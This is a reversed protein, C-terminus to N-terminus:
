LFYFKIFQTHKQGKKQEDIHAASNQHPKIRILYYLFIHCM